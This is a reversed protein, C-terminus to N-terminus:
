EHDADSHTRVGFTMGVNFDKSAYAASDWISSDSEEYAGEIGKSLESWGELWVTVTIKLYKDKVASTKGFSTGNTITGRDDTAVVSSDNARYATQLLPNDLTYGTINHESDYVPTKQELGDSGGYLCLGEFEYGSDQQGDENLDLYGGVPTGYVDNVEGENDQLLQPEKAFLFYKHTGDPSEADFHVRVAQSLDRGNDANKITLDTLYVDNALYTQEDEGHEGKQKYHEDVDVLKILATFQLYSNDKAILWNNYLGQRYDPSDYFRTKEGMIPNNLEDVDGTDYTQTPLAANREQAGTTIPQFKIGTPLMDSSIDTGWHAGGDVSINLLKSCHASTGTYAVTNRTVNQFWAITGTISSVLTLSSLAVLSSIVLQRSKKM